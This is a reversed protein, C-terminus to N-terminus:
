HVKGIPDHAGTAGKVHAAPIPTTSPDSFHELIRRTREPKGDLLLAIANRYANMRFDDVGPGARDIRDLFAAVDLLRARHEMFYADIVQARTMFHHNLNPTAESM